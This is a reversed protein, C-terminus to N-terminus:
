RSCAPTEAPEFWATVGTLASTWRYWGTPYATVSPTKMRRQLGCTCSQVDPTLWGWRHRRPAKRKTSM